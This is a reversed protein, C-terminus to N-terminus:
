LARYQLVNRSGEVFPETIGWEMYRISVIRRTGWGLRPPSEPVENTGFLIGKPDNALCTRVLDPPFDPSGLFSAGSDEAKFTPLGSKRARDKM